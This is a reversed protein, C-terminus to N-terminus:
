ARRENIKDAEMAVCLSAIDGISEGLGASVIRCKEFSAPIAERKAAERVPELITEGMRTALGGAVICDPNFLDILIAIAEGLKKGSQRIVDLAVRDNRQAADWLDKATIPSLPYGPYSTLLTEIARREALRTATMAIQAIGAGSAWGEASGVKSFGIPGSRTLRVHGIEGASFSSGRYLRGGLILGAGLGTGCTLFIMNECNVGAGFQHEALAGANADNELHCPVRFEGSLISVIPVADWTPLNPPRNIIGGVPDLPGGCSVGIAQLDFPGCGQACLMERLSEIVCTIVVDPGNQSSSPFVIRELVTPLGASLVVATKTGGIDVGAWINQPM